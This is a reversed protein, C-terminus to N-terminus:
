ESPDCFLSDQGTSISPIKISVVIAHVIVPTIFANIVSGSFFAFSSNQIQIRESIIITM